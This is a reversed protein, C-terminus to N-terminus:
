RPKRKLLMFVVTTVGLLVFTAALVAEAVRLWAVAPAQPHKREEAQVWEAPEEVRALTTPAEAVSPEPPPAPVPETPLPEVESAAAEGGVPATEPEPTPPPTPTSEVQAGAAPEVTATGPALTRKALLKPQDEVTARGTIVMSVGPTSTLPATGLLGAQLTPTYPQPQALEAAPAPSAVAAKTEEGEGGAAAPPAQVALTPAAEVAGEDPGPESPAVDALDTPAPEEPALGRAPEAMIEEVADAAPAEKEVVVEAEPVAEVVLTAQPAEERVAAPQPAYSPLLGTFMVDGAIVFFLLLAV